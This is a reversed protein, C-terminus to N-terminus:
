GIYFWLYKDLPSLSMFPLPSEHNHYNLHIVPSVQPFLLIFNNFKM